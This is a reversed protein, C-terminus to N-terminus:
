AASLLPGNLNDLASLLRVVSPRGAAPRVGLPAPEWWAASGRSRARGVPRPRGSPQAPERLSARCAAESARQVTEDDPVLNETLMSGIGPVEKWKRTYYYGPAPGSSGSDSEGRTGGGSSRTAAAAASPAAAWRGAARDAHCSCGAPHHWSREGSLRSYYYVRGTAPHDARRWGRPLDDSASTSTSASSGSGVSSTESVPPSQCRQLAPGLCSRGSSSGTSGSAASPSQSLSSSMTTHTDQRGGPAARHHNAHPSHRRATKDGDISTM